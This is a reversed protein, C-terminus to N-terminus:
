EDSDDSPYGSYNRFCADEYPDSLDPWLWALFREWMARMM